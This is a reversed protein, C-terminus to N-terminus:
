LNPLSIVQGIKLKKADLLPNVKAIERWKTADGYFHVAIKAFTDGAVIAYIEPIPKSEAALSLQDRTASPQVIAHASAKPTLPSGTEGGEPIPSNTAVRREDVVELQGHLMGMWCSWPIFIDGPEKPTFEVTQVGKKIDFELGLKPVIIRRNCETIEKGDIIWKVPVGRRLVFHNPEYGSKTVDMRIIQVDSEMP